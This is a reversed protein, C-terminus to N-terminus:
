RAFTIFFYFLLFTFSYFLLLVNTHTLETVRPRDYKDHATVRHHKPM